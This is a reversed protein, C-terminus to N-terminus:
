RNPGRGALGPPGPIDLMRLAEALAGSPPAGASLAGDFKGPIQAAVPLPVATRVVHAMLDAAQDTPIGRRVLESLITVPIELSRGDPRAQWLSTLVAYPIGQRSASAAAVIEGEELTVDPLAVRLASRAQRFEEALAAVVEGIQAPSVGKTRGELVKSQLARLPLSDRAAAELTPGVAAATAPDLRSSFGPDQGGVEHPLCLLLSLALPRLSSV